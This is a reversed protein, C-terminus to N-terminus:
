VVSTLLRVIDTAVFSRPAGGDTVWRDATAGHLWVAAVSADSPTAGQALLSVVMGALADGSGGTALADNGTPNISVRGEPTAIVTRAGKLVVVAGSTAAYRRAVGVRDRQVEETSLGALRAMEGPHPTVVTPATRRNLWDATGMLTLADADLVLPLSSENVIREVVTRTADTVGIGPGILLADLTAGKALLPEVAEASIGGDVTEPLPLTM